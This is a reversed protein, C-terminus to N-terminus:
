FVIFNIQRAGIIKGVSSNLIWNLITKSDLKFNSLNSGDLISGRKVIVLFITFNCKFTWNEFRTNLNKKIRFIEM